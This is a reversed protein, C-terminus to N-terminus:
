GGFLMDETEDNFFMKIAELQKKSALLYNNKNM